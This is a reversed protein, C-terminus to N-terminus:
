SIFNSVSKLSKINSYLSVKDIQFDISWYQQVTVGQTRLNNRRLPQVSILEWLMNLAEM